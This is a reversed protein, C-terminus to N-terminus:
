NEKVITKPLMLIRLTTADHEQHTGEVGVTDQALVSPERGADCVPDASLLAEGDRDIGVSARSDAVFWFLYVSNVPVSM